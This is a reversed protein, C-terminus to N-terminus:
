EVTTRYADRWAHVEEHAEALAVDKQAVAAQYQNVARSLEANEEFTAHLRQEMANLRLQTNEQTLSIVRDVLKMVDANRM